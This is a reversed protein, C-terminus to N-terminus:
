WKYIGIKNNKCKIGLKKDKTVMIKISNPFKKTMNIFIELQADDNLENKEKGSWKKGSLFFADELKTLVTSANKFNCKYLFDIGYKNIEGNQHEEIFKVYKIVCKQDVYKYKHAQLMKYKNEILSIYTDIMVFNLSNLKHRKMIVSKMKTIGNLVDTDSSISSDFTVFVNNGGTIIQEQLMTEIAFDETPIKYSLNWLQKGTMYLKEVQLNKYSEYRWQDLQEDTLINRIIPNVMMHSAITKNWNEQFVKPIQVKM